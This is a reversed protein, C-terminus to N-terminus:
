PKEFNPRVADQSPAPNSLIQEALADADSFIVSAEQGSRVTVDKKRVVDRGDKVWQVTVTVKQGGPVSLPVDISRETGSAPVFQQDVWVRAESTPVQVRMRTKDGTLSGSNLPVVANPDEYAATYPAPAMGMAVMTGGPACCNNNAYGYSYAPAAYCCGNSRGYSYYGDCCCDNRWGRRFILGAQAADVAALTVLGGLVLKIICGRNM